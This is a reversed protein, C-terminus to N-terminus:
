GRGGGALAVDDGSSRLLLRAVGSTATMTMKKTVVEHIPATVTLTYTVKVKVGALKRRVAKSAKLDVRGGDEGEGNSPFATISGKALTTSKLGLKRKTGGDVKLLASGQPVCDVFVNQHATVCAVALRNVVAKGTDLKTIGIGRIALQDSQAAAPGSPLLVVAALLASSAVTARKTRSANRSM